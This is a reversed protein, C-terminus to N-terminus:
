RLKANNDFTILADQKKSLTSILPVKQLKEVAKRMHGMSPHSYRDIMSRTKWGGLKMITSEDIGLECLRSCWSHRLDHFRFGELGIKKVAKNFGNKIDRFAEGTRHSNFVYPSDEPSDQIVEKLVKTLLENMPIDRVEWNKTHTVHIIRNKFDVNNKTLDFIEKKRMGANLATIVVAKIKKSKMENLLEVEKEPSLVTIDKQEEKLLKVEKVPNDKIYRWSIAKTFM